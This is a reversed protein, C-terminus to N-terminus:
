IMLNAALGRTQYSQLGPGHSSRHLRVADCVHLSPGWRVRRECGAERRCASESEEDQLVAMKPDPLLWLLPM